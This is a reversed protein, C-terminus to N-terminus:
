TNRCCLQYNTLHTFIGESKNGVPQVLVPTCPMARAFNRNKELTRRQNLTNVADASKDISHNPKCGVRSSKTAAGESKAISSTRLDFDRVDM